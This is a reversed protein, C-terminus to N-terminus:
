SRGNFADLISRALKESSAAIFSMRKTMDFDQLLRNGKADLVFGGAENVMHTGSVHVIPLIDRLDVMADLAGSATWCLDLLNSGTRRIDYVGQLASLSHTGFDEKMSKKTDYSIIAKSSDSNTRVEITRGNLRAGKGKEATYTEKTFFSDIISFEVDDTTMADSFPVASLGVSCLPIGRELNTSGDIPDIIALYEPKGEPTILGQEETLILYITDSRELIAVITDEASQDLRLTKDGFPNQTGTKEKAFDLNDLVLEKATKAATKLDNMITMFYCRNSASPLTEIVRNM